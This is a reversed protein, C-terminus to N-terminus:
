DLRSLRAEFAWDMAQWFEAKSVPRRLEPYDMARYDPRFQAMVNVFTDFSIQEAIFQFVSRTGALENPLVLHRVLLGRVAIKNEDMKLNGVQRYMEKVASQNIKTYEKVGSYKLANEDDGYKMDPMYIDVIGDLLELTKLSDYGGTNYVLPLTLGQNAAILLAELIQPVVHTPTVFNINHCGHAQLDLMMRALEEASVLLGYNDQSFDSNQCFQCRLNCGSFFIAGSGMRGRLPDEEGHHAMYSYVRAQTGTRCQGLENSKRNVGCNRPCLTCHTLIELTSEIRKNLEGSELLNLYAPKFIAM